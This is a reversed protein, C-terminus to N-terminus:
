ALLAITARAGITRLNDLGTTVEAVLGPLETLDRGWLSGDSLIAEVYDSTVSGTTAANAAAYAAHFTALVEDSDVPVVTVAADGSYTLLLASLALTVRPPFTGVKEHFNVLIPLLRSKYKSISNLAISALEHHMFRNEFREKVSEAYAALEDHPLDIVPIIEEYMEANVFQSFEPDIMVDRVTEVGALRAISAM